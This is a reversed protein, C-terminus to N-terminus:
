NKQNNQKFRDFKKGGQYTADHAPQMFFFIRKAAM